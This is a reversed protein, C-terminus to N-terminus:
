RAPQRAPDGIEAAAAVARPRGGATVRSAVRTGASILPQEILHYLAVPLGISGVLLVSLRAWADVGRLVDFAVWFVINHSLYIGYSYKAVLHSARTLSRWRLEDFCPILLGLALSLAWARHIKDHLPIDDFPGFGAVVLLVVFPWLWASLRPRMNRSLDYAVIGATFCPAFSFVILRLSIRPLIVAAIAAALWIALSRYRSSRVALYLFPLLCYMEVELPLSWLVNYVNPSNTLPQALALNSLFGGAGPWKYSILPSAPILFVPAFLVCFISLPYIRFFRRIGFVAALMGPRRVGKQELRELSLMLVLSTHVFFVIVGFRGLSGPNGFGAAWSLHNVYVCTVATARLFDLNASDRM